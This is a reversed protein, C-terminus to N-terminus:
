TYSLSIPLMGKTILKYCYLTEERNCYSQPLFLIFFEFSRNPFNIKQHCCSLMSLLFLHPPFWQFLFLICLPSLCPTRYLLARWTDLMTLLFINVDFTFLREKRKRRERKKKKQKKNKKKLNTLQVWLMYLSGPYPNFQLWLLALDSGCRYGVGWSM